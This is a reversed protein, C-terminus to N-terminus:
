HVQKFGIEFVQHSKAFVILAIFTTMFVAEKWIVAM